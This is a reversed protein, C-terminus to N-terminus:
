DREYRSLGGNGPSAKGRQDALLRDQWESAAERETIARHLVPHHQRMNMPALLPPEPEFLRRCQAARAGPVVIEEKRKATAEGIAARAAREGPNIWEEEEIIPALIDARVQVATLPATKPSM